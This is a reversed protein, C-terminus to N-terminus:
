ITELHTLMEAVRQRVAEREERLADLEAKFSEEATAPALAVGVGVVALAAFACLSSAIKKM